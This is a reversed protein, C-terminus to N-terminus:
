WTPACPPPCCLAGDSLGRRPDRWGWIPRVMDAWAREAAACVTLGTPPAGEQCAARWLDTIQRDVDDLYTERDSDSESQLVEDALALGIAVAVHLGPHTLAKHVTSHPLGTCLALRRM